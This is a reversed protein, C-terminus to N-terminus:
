QWKEKDPTIALKNSGIIPKHVRALGPKTPFHIPMWISVCISGDPPSLPYTWPVFQYLLHASLKSFDLLISLSKSKVLSGIWASINNTNWFSQIHNESFTSLVTFISADVTSISSLPTFSRSVTTSVGPKASAILLSSLHPSLETERFVQSIVFIGNAEKM